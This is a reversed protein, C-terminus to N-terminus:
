LALKVPFLLSDVVSRENLLSATVLQWTHLVFAFAPLQTDRLANYPCDGREALNRDGKESM